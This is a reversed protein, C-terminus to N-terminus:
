NILVQNVIGIFMLFLATQSFIWVAGRLLTNRYMIHIISHIIRLTLYVWACSILFINSIDLSIILIIFFYFIIPFEFLNTINNKMLKLYLPSDKYPEIPIGSKEWLKSKRMLDTSAISHILGVVFTLAVLGIAPILISSMTVDDIFM